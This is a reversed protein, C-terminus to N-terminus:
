GVMLTHLRHVLNEAFFNLISLKLPPYGLSYYGPVCVLDQLIQSIPSACYPMRFATLTFAPTITPTVILRVTSTHKKLFLELSSVVCIYKLTQRRQLLKKQAVCPTAGRPPPQLLLFLIEQCMRQVTERGVGREGRFFYPLRVNM